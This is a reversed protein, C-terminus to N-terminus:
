FEHNLTPETSIKCVFFSTMPIFNIVWGNLLSQLAVCLINFTMAVFVVREGRVSALSHAM